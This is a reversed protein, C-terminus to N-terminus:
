RYLWRAVLRTYRPMIGWTLLGVIVAAVALGALADPLRVTLPALAQPVALSLPFIVSLVLLFQKWPRPARRARDPPTLWFELGTRIEPVDARSLHPEIADLLQQRAPSHLWAQLHELADFRVVTTYTRSGDPPRVVTVGEHGPFAKAVPVVEDIWSEYRAESGPRVEHRIVSVVESAVGM